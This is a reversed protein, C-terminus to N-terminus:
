PTEGPDDAPQDDPTQDDPTVDTPAPASEVPAGEFEDIHLGSELDLDDGGIWRVTLEGLPTVQDFAV